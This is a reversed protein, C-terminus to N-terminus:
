GPETSSGCAVAGDIDIGRGCVGSQEFELFIGCCVSSKASARLGFPSPCCRRLLPQLRNVKPGNRCFISHSRMRIITNMRHERLPPPTRPLTMPFLSQTMSSPRLLGFFRRTTMKHSTACCRRWLIVRLHTWRCVCRRWCIRKKRRSANGRLSLSVIAASTGSAGGFYGRPCGDSGGNRGHNPPSDVSLTGKNQRRKRRCRRAGVGSEM